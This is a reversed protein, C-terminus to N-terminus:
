NIIIRVDGDKTRIIYIGAPANLIFQVSSGTAITNYVSMGLQNFVQIPSGETVGEITLLNGARVPNPYALVSAKVSNITKENSYLTAGGSTTLEFRYTGNLLDSSRPGESYTLQGKSAPELNGDKYWRSGTVNHSPFDAKLKALDLM